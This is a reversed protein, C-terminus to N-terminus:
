RSRRLLWVGPEASAILDFGKPPDLPISDAAFNAVVLKPATDNVILVPALAYQVLLFRRFDESTFTAPQAGSMYGVVGRPPLMPGLGRFRREYRSVPDEQRAEIAGRGARYVWRADSLAAYALILILGIRDRTIRM